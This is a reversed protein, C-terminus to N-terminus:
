GINDLGTVLFLIYLFKEMPCSGSSEQQLCSTDLRIKGLGPSKKDPRQKTETM